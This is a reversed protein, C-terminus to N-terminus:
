PRTGWSGAAIRTTSSSSRTGICPWRRGYGCYDEVAPWDTGWMLRQPGFADYLRRVQEHTDRYPYAERSLSWLHSLKVYVRPYRALALLKKLEDPKDIPCDAMHDICVDLAGDHRRIVEEVDAIRSVPCLVCMPVKLEGARQWIPDMQQRDRIWDGSPGEGPSLRVGRLGAAVWHELQSVAESSQPDVRCVGAFKDPHARVADAAYRCDWRYYIVHVIVTWEVGHEKMRALLMEPTADENPPSTLDAPWPYRPDNTWVHVHPDVIRFSKREGAMAAQEALFATAAVLGATRGLWECRTIARKASM